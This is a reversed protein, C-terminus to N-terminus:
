RELLGATALAERLGAEMRPRLPLIPPRPPGGAAGLLDLARKIGPIGLEGVVTRHLPAVREQLAGARAGEGAARLRVIDACPHPALLSVALVGGVAGVELAGYLVAGSGALVACRSGCAEVYGSLTRLDGSSDKIGVVNGHLALEGVLGAPLEMGSFRPPVQYLVVPVPSADAVVSFHTRLAEPTLLPRYYAPSQVLVADAGAAAADRCLRV